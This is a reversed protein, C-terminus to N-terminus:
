RRGARIEPSVSFRVGAKQTCPLLAVVIVIDGRELAVGLIQDSHHSEFGRNRAELALPMAM